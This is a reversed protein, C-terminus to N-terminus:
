SKSSDEADAATLDKDLIKELLQTQRKMEELREIGLILYELLVIIFLGPLAGLFAMFLADIVSLRYYSIFTYLVGILVLAWAVGLLFNVLIGLKSRNLRM